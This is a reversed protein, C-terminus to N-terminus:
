EGVFASTAAMRATLLFRRPQSGSFATALPPCAPLPGRGEEGHGDPAAGPQIASLM